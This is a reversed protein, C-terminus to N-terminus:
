EDVVVATEGGREYAEYLGMVLDLSHYNKVTPDVAEPNECSHGAGSRNQRCALPALLVEM